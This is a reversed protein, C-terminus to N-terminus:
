SEAERKRARKVDRVEQMTEESDVDAITKWSAAESEWGPPRVGRKKALVAVTIKTKEEGFGPLEAIRRGLDSGTRADRWVGEAEGGYREVLAQCLAQVRKAMSGPFRHLAPRERFVADLRDPDMAAIARADLKGGLREKLVKPGMFAKEMPVQQDLVLGILLALPDEELLRNAAPDSTWVIPM